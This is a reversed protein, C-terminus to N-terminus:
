LLNEPSVGNETSRNRPARDDADRIAHFDVDHRELDSTVSSSDCSFLARMASSKLLCAALSGNV